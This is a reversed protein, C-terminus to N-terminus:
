KGKVLHDALLKEIQVIDEPQWMMFPRAPINAKPAGYQHHPAVDSDTYVKLDARSAIIRIDISKKLHGKDQLIMGDRYKLPEWKKPRGQQQFNRKVSRDGIVAIRKLPLRKGRKVLTNLMKDIGRQDLEARGEITM